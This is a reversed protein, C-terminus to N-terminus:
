TSCCTSSWLELEMWLDELHHHTSWTNSWAHCWEAWCSALPKFPFLCFHMTDIHTLWKYLRERKDIIANPASISQVPCSSHKLCCSQKHQRFAGNLAWPHAMDGRRSMVEWGKVRPQPKFHSKLERWLAALGLRPFHSSPSLKMVPFCSKTKLM